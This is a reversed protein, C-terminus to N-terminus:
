LKCDSPTQGKPILLHKGVGTMSTKSTERSYKEALHSLFGDNLDDSTELLLRRNDVEHEEIDSDNDLDELIFTLKILINSIQPTFMGSSSAGSVEEEEEENAVDAEIDIFPNKKSTRARKSPRTQLCSPDTM